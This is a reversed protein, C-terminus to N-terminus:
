GCKFELARDSQGAEALACGSTLYRVESLERGTVEPRERLVEVVTSEASPSNALGVGRENL